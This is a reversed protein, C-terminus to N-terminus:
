VLCHFYKSMMFCSIRSNTILLPSISNYSVIHLGQMICNNTMEIRKRLKREEISIFSLFITKDIYYVTERKKWNQKVIWLVLFSYLFLIKIACTIKRIEKYQTHIQTCLLDLYKKFFSKPHSCLCVVFSYIWTYMRFANFAEKTRSNTLNVIYNEHFVVVFLMYLSVLLCVNHTDRSHLYYTWSLSCIFIGVAFFFICFRDKLFCISRSDFVFIFGNKNRSCLSKSRSYMKSDLFFKKHKEKKKELQKNSFPPFVISVIKKKNSSKNIYIKNNSQKEPCNKRSKFLAPTFIFRSILWKLQFFGERNKHKNSLKPNTQIFCQFSSISYFFHHCRFYVWFPPFPSNSEKLFFPSDEGPPFIWHISFQLIYM